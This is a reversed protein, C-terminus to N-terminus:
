YLYRSKSIKSNNKMTYSPRLCGNMWDLDNEIEEVFVEGLLRVECGSERRKLLKLWKNRKRQLTMFIKRQTPYCHDIDAACFYIAKGNLGFVNTLYEEIPLVVYFKYRTKQIYQTENPLFHYRFSNYTTGSITRSRLDSKRHSADKWFQGDWEQSAFSSRRYIYSRGFICSVIVASNVYVAVFAHSISGQFPILPPEIVELRDRYNKYNSSPDFMTEIEKLKSIYKKDLEQFVDTLLWRSYRYLVHVIIIVKWTSKLRQVCGLNLSAYIEMVGHFNNMSRLYQM